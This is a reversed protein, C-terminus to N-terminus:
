RSIPQVVPVAIAAVPRDRTAFGNEAASNPVPLMPGRAGTGPDTMGNTGDSGGPTQSMPIKPKPPTTSTPPSAGGGDKKGGNGDDKSPPTLQSYNGSPAVVPVASFAPAVISQNRILPRARAPQPECCTDTAKFIKCDHSGTGVGVQIQNFNTPPNPAVTSPAAQTTSGAPRLAPSDPSVGFWSAVASRAIAGPDAVLANNMVGTQGSFPAAQTTSTNSPIQLVGQGVKVTVPTRSKNEVHRGLFSRDFCLNTVESWAMRGDPALSPEYVHIEAFNPIVQLCMEKPLAEITKSLQMVASNDSPLEAAQTTGGAGKAAGERALAAAANMIDAAAQGGLRASIGSALVNQATASDKMYFPGIGTFQWGNVLNMAARMEGAGGRIKLGYKQTMDPVFVIQYTYFTNPALGDNPVDHPSMPPGSASYMTAGAKNATGQNTNPNNQAVESVPANGMGAFNTRANLDAFKSQDDFGTPIPASDTLGTKADELNRFNKSVILLPKPLYFPIGTEKGYMPGDAPNLSVAEIQPTHHAWLIGTACGSSGLAAAAIAVAVISRLM